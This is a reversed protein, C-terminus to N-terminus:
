EWKICVQCDSSARKVWKKSQYYLICVKYKYFLRFVILMFATATILLCLAFIQGILILRLESEEYSLNEEIKEKFVIEVLSKRRKKSKKNTPIELLNKINQNEKSKNRRKPNLM